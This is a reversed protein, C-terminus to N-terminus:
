DQFKSYCKGPKEKSSKISPKSHLSKPSKGATCDIDATRPDHLGTGDVIIKGSADCQYFDICYYGFDM